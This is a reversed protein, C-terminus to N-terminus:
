VFDLRDERVVSPVAMALWVLPKQGSKLGLSRSAM